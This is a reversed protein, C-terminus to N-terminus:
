LLKWQAIGLLYTQVFSVVPAGTLELRERDKVTTLTFTGRPDRQALLITHFQYPLDKQGVPKIGHRLFLTRTGTDETPNRADSLPDAKATAYLHVGPLRFLYANAWKRYLANIVNWDMWGDFTELRPQKGAKQIKDRVSELQIRATLFYEDIDQHFVQEVFYSQVASWANGMFDVVAWDGPSAAARVKDLASTFDPWDFCEYVTVNTLAPYGTLMRAVAFDTDLVHFHTPAGTSQALKAINLWDTTKGSGAPGLVLIRETTPFSPHLL